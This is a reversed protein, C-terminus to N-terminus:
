DDVSMRVRCVSQTDVGREGRKLCVGALQIQVVHVRHIERVYGPDDEEDTSSAQPLFGHAASRAIIALMWCPPWSGELASCFVSNLFIRVEHRRFPSSSFKSSAKAWAYRTQDDEPTRKLVGVTALACSGESTVSSSLSGETKFTEWLTPKTV